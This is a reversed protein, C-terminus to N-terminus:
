ESYPVGFCLEAKRAPRKMTERVEVAHGMKQWLALAADNMYLLRLHQASDGRLAYISLSNLIHGQDTQVLYDPITRAPANEPQLVERASQTILHYMRDGISAWHLGHAVPRVM